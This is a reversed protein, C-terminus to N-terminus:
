TEYSFSAWMVSTNTASLATSANLAVTLSVGAATLGVVAGTTSSAGINLAMNVYSSTAQQWALPIIRTSPTSAAAFPLGTISLPNAALTNGSGQLTLRFSVTVLRGIKTYLGIQTGYNFTSGTASFGPTWTGEEYDDLTNADSSPNQTAPFAIQGQAPTSAGTALSVGANAVLPGTLTGGSLPLKTADTAPNLLVWAGAAANYATDYRFLYIGNALMEGGVLATDGQLRIAKAGNADLNLTAATTNPGNTNKFAAFLGNTLASYLTPTTVTIANATGAVTNLGALDAYFQANLAMSNRFSDDATSLLSTGLIGVSKISTNTGPTTSATSFSSVDTM